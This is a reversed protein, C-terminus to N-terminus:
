EYKKKAVFRHSNRSYRKQWSNVCIKVLNERGRIARIQRDTHMQARWHQLATQRKSLVRTYDLSISFLEHLCAYPFASRHMRWAILVLYVEVCKSMLHRIVIKGQTGVGHLMGNFFAERSVMHSVHNEAAHHNFVIRLALTTQEVGVHNDFANGHWQVDDTLVV